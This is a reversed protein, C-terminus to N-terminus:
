KNLFIKEQMCISSLYMLRETTVSSASISMLEALSLNPNDFPWKKPPAKNLTLHEAETMVMGAMLWEDKAVAARASM